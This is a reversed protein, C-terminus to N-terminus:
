PCPPSTVAGPKERGARRKKWWGVVALGCAIGFGNVFLDGVDEWGFGFGFVTQMAESGTGLLAVPIWGRHSDLLLVFAVTLAAFAGLHMLGRAKRKVWHYTDMLWGGDLAGPVPLGAPESVQGVVAAASVPAIGDVTPMCVPPTAAPGSADIRFGGGLPRLPEWPGPLMLTWVTMLALASAASSRWRAQEGTIARLLREWWFGTAVLLGGTAWVLWPRQRVPTIELTDLQFEGGLGAHQLLISPEGPQDLAAVYEFQFHGTGEAGLLGRHVSGVNGNQDRWILAVRGNQWDAAGPVLGRSEGSFRIHAALGRPWDHLFIERAPAPGDKSARLALAGRAANWHLNEAGQLIRGPPTPGPAFRLAPVSEAVVWANRWLWGAGAVLLAFLCLHLIPRLTRM